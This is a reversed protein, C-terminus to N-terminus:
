GNGPVQDALWEHVVTAIKEWSRDLTIGHGFGSADYFKMGLLAALERVEAHPTLLDHEAGVVLGPGTIRSKDISVRPDTTAQAVAKPSEPVLMGYYRRADPEDTGSFFLAQASEFPPPGWLSTPDIPLSISAPSVEDPLVPTLLALGRYRNTEAFKLTALAGMSHAVVLPPAALGQAVLEIDVAVDELSRGIAESEDLPDSLGRGRWDLVHCDWGRGTLFDVYADWCWSGHLGGHVLLVPVGRSTGVATTERVNIGGVKYDRSKVVRVM